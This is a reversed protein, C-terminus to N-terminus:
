NMLLWAELDTLSPDKLLVTKDKDLLYFIPMAPLAYLNHEVIGETDMAVIWERPLCTKTHEWLARDGETYVALVGLRQEDMLRELVPSGYLGELIETCHGCAPDYFLLLLRRDVATDYLRGRLGERTFYGFDTVVNGPRNKRATELQYAPRLREEESLGRLRLVGELYLIYYTENRMPSNPDNLYREVVSTFLRFAEKDKVIRGLASDVCRPLDAENTHPFLSLWNVISQEMFGDNHSRLTDRFDLEEWYHTLIYAARESPVTLSAPVEPLSLEKRVSLSDAQPKNGMKESSLRNSQCSGMYAIVALTCIIYNGRMNM